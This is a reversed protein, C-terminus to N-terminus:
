NEFAFPLVVFDIVEQGSKNKGPIWIMNENAIRAARLVEKGFLKNNSYTSINRVKGDAEILINIKTNLKKPLNRLANKDILKTIEALFLKNGGPFQAPFASVPPPPVNQDQPQTAQYNEAASQSSALSFKFLLIILLYKM